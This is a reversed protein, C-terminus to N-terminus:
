NAETFKFNIQEIRYFFSTKKASKVIEWLKSKEGEVIVELRGNKKTLVHNKLGHKKISYDLQKKYFFDRVSGTGFLNKLLKTNLHLKKVKTNM